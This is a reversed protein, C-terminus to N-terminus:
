EGEEQKEKDQVRRSELVKFDLGEGLGRRKVKKRAATLCAPNPCLYYSRGQLPLGDGSSLASGERGLRILEGKGRRTGCGVCMRIPIHGKRSM